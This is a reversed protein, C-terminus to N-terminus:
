EWSPRVGYFRHIRLSWDPDAMDPWDDNDFGEADQLREKNIDLVFSQGDEHLKIANWPVAFLKDERSVFGGFSLVVYAIRGSRLGLMIEKVEGLVEGRPNSVKDGIVTRASLASAAAM